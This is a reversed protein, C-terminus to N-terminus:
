ERESDYHRRASISPVDIWGPEALELVHQGGEPPARQCRDADKVVRAVISKRSQRHRRRGLTPMSM